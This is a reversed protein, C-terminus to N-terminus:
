RKKKAKAKPMPGLLQNCIPANGIWAIGRGRAVGCLFKTTLIYTFFAVLQEQTPGAAVPAAQGALPGKAPPAAGAGGVGSAVQGTSTAAVERGNRRVVVHIWYNGPGANHGDWVYNNLGPGVPIGGDLLAGLGDERNRNTDAWVDVTTGPAWADDAFQVTYTPAVAEDRLLRFNELHWSRDGPDEHPDLRLMSVFTTWSTGWGIFERNGAPDLIAAPPSTRLDVVYTNRGPKVVIDESVQEHGGDFGRWVLRAMMGGGPSDELGFPGDYVITFEAKHYLTADIQTGGSNLIVVPDNRQGAASAHLAGGGVSANINYTAFLDSPQDFDWADGRVETAFDGGGNEQPSFVFPQPSSTTGMTVPGSTTSKSGNQSWYFQAPVGRRFLGAHAAFTSGANFAGVRNASEGVGGVNGDDSTNSNMDQWVEVSGSGGQLTVFVSPAPQYIMFDDFTVTPKAPTNFGLALFLLDISGSWPAGAHRPVGPPSPEYDDNGVMDLDYTHWGPVIEFYRYGDACNDCTRFGVAGVTARDSHMRFSVRTYTGARLERSRPDRVASTPAAGADHRVFFVQGAGELRLRGDQMSGSGSPIRLRHLDMDSDDSFDMANRYENTFYDMPATVASGSTSVGAPAAAAPVGGGAGEAVVAAALLTAVVALRHRSRPRPLASRTARSRVPM